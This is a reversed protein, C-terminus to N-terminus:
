DFFLFKCSLPLNGNDVLLKYNAELVGGMSSYKERERSRALMIDLPLIDLYNKQVMTIFEKNEIPKLGLIHIFIRRFDRAGIKNSEYLEILNSLSIEYFHKDGLYTSNNLTSLVVYGNQTLKIQSSGDIRFKEYDKDTDSLPNLIKFKNELSRQFTRDLDVKIPKSMEISSKLSSRSPLDVGHEQAKNFIEHRMDASLVTRLVQLINHFIVTKKEKSFYNYPITVLKGEGNRTLPGFKDHWESDYNMQSVYLFAMRDIRSNERFFKHQEIIEREVDEKKIELPHFANVSTRNFSAINFIKLIEESPVGLRLMEEIVSNFIITSQSKSSFTTSDILVFTKSSYQEPAIKLGEQSLFEALLQPTAGQLSPTSINIRKVRGKQGISLYFAEVADAVMATDRGLFAYTGGPFTKELSIILNSFQSKYVPLRTNEYNNLDSVQYEELLSKNSFFLHIDPRTNNEILETQAKNQAYINISFLFCLFIYLIKNIM